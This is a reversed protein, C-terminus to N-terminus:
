RTGVRMRRVVSHGGSGGSCIRKEIEVVVLKFHVVAGARGTGDVCETMSYSSPICGCGRQCFVDDADFETVSSFIHGAVALTTDSHLEYNGVGRISGWFSSDCSCQHSVTPRLLM